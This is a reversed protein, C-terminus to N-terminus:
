ESVQDVIHLTLSILIAIRLVWNMKNRENCFQLAQINQAKTIFGWALSAATLLKELQKQHVTHVRLFRGQFGIACLVRIQM